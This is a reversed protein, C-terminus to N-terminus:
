YSDQRSWVRQGTLDTAVTLARRTERADNLMYGETECAIAYGTITGGSDTTTTVGFCKNDILTDDGINLGAFQNVGGPYNGYLTPGWVLAGTSDLEIMAGKIISCADEACGNTTEYHTGVLIIGGTAAILEIDNVKVTAEIQASTWAVTGDNGALKIVSSESGIIAYINDSSDLRM